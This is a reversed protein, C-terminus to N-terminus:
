LIWTSSSASSVGSRNRGGSPYASMGLKRSPRLRPPSPSPPPTALHHHQQSGSHQGPLCWSQVGSLLWDDDTDASVLDEGRQHAAPTMVRPIPSTTTDISGTRHDTLLYDDAVGTGFETTYDNSGSEVGSATGADMAGVGAVWDFTDCSVMGSDYSFLDPTDEADDEIHLKHGTDDFLTSTYLDINTQIETKHNM